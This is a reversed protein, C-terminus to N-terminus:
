IYMWSEEQRDMATDIKEYIGILAEQAYTVTTPTFRIESQGPEAQAILPLDARIVTGISTYGGTTPHDAMMVIPEGDAPVQIQGLALGQSIIDAGAKHSLIPGTLRYGMRDMKPSLSFPKDWFADQSAETFRATHPGPIVRVVQTNSYAPRAEKPIFSGALDRDPHQGKLLPLQEGDAILQGLGGRPYVSRSGMWQQSQIGGSVALYAWNGGSSKVFEVQDGRHAYFAMWLPQAM